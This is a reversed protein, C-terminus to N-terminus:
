LAGNEAERPDNGKETNPFKHSVTIEQNETNKAGIRAQIKSPNQIM